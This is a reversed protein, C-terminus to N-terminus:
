YVIFSSIADRICDQRKWLSSMALAKSLAYLAQKGLLTKASIAYTASKRLDSAAIAFASM